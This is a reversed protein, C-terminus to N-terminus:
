ISHSPLITGKSEYEKRKYSIISDNEAHVMLMVRTGRIAKLLDYIYGDNTMRGSESYTTFVKISRLKNRVALEVLEVPSIQPNAVTLHLQATICSQSALAKRKDVLNQLQDADGTIVDTFDFFTTYGGFAAAKSGTEFDDASRNEGLALDFHVHPEILGPFIYMHGADFIEKTDPIMMKSDLISVIKGDKICIHIRFSRSGHIITGNQIVLDYAPQKPM